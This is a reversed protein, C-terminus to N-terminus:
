YLVKMVTPLNSVLTDAFHLPSYVYKDNNKGM